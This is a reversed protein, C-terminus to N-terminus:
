DGLSKVSVCCMEGSAKALGKLSDPLYDCRSLVGASNMKRLFQRTDGVTNGYALEFVYLANMPARSGALYFYGVGDVVAHPSDAKGLECSSALQDLELQAKDYLHLPTSLLQSPVTYFSGQNAIWLAPLQYSALQIASVLFVGMCGAAIASLARQNRALWEQHVSDGLLMGILLVLCPVMLGPTYFHWSAPNYIAAHGLLGALMMAILVHTLRLRLRVLARMVVWSATVPVSILLIIYLQRIGSGVALFRALGGDFLLPKALWFSQPDASLPVREPVLALAALLNYLLRASFDAIDSAGRLDIVNGSLVAQLSPVNDCSTAAFTAPVIQVLMALPVGVAFTRLGWHAYRLSAWISVVAFPAFFLSKPHIYLMASFLTVLGSSKVLGLGVSEGPKSFYLPVLTFIILCLAQFQEGRTLIMIMPLSGIASLCLLILRVSNRASAGQALRGGWWWLMALCLVAVLVGVLRLGFATEVGYILSYLVAGPVLSAQLGATIAQRCQPYLYLVQWDDALFRARSMHVAIEDSYLPVLLGVALSLFVLVQTVGGLAMWVGGISADAKLFDFRAIQAVRKM